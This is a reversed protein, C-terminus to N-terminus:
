SMVPRRISNGCLYHSVTRSLALYEYLCVFSASFHFMVISSLHRRHRVLCLFAAHITRTFEETSQQDTSDCTCGGHHEERWFRASPGAGANVVLIIFHAVLHEFANCLGFFIRKCLCVVSSVIQPALYSLKAVAPM